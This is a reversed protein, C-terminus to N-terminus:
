LAKLSQYQLVYLGVEKGGKIGVLKGIHFIPRCLIGDGDNEVQKNIVARGKVRDDRVYEDPLQKM